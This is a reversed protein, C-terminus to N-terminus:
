VDRRRFALVSVAIAVLLLGLLYAGSELHGLHRPGLCDGLTTCRATPDVYEYHTNLWGLVNTGLSWRAIGDIPLLYGFLEGAVSYALLLALTAVSYRFLMTLAFAGLGAGMALLVARLLHWGIDGLVASGHPVGRDAAVLYMALWFGGLVVLAVAGSALAVATGKAAWVRGRRSEALLQTSMSGSAWDGGAFTAGAIILLVVVLTALGLGNGALTGTLDLTERPVYSRPAATLADRCQQPTAGPGLYRVPDALCTALDAKIDSRDADMAAQAKATAVEQDSLPRTDWASKAAVGAALVAALLVLLAIVRRSRFRTLEVRLLRIM